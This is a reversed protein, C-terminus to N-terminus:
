VNHGGKSVHTQAGAPGDAPGESRQVALYAAHREQCAQNPDIGVEAWWRRENGAAHQAEHHKRCLPLVWRDDPKKGLGPNLRGVKAEGFRLHAPDIRGECGGLIPGVICPQLRTHALYGKDHEREHRKGPAASAKLAKARDRRDSNRKKAAAKKEPAEIERIKQRLLALDRRQDATRNM